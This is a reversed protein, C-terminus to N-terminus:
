KDNVEEAEQLLKAINITPMIYTPYHNSMMTLTSVAQRIYPFLIALANGKLYVDFGSLNEDEEAHYTFLGNVTLSLFFPQEKTNREGLNLKVEVIAKEENEFLGFNYHIEQILEISDKPDELIFDDNELFMIETIKYSEFTIVAM